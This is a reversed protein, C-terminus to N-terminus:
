ERLQLKFLLTYYGDIIILAASVFKLEETKYVMM